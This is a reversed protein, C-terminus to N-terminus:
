ERPKDLEEVSDPDDTLNKGFRYSTLQDIEKSESANIEKIFEEMAKEKLNEHTKREIMFGTLKQEAEDVKKQAMSVEILQEKIIDDMRKMAEQSELIKSVRLSQQLLKRTENEYTKKRSQLKKLKEEQENLFMRAQAYEIKAQSEMQNKIDLINQMRYKFKAM